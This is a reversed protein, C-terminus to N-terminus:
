HSHTHGEPVISSVAALKLQYAGKAVLRDGASLGSLAVAREGDNPGLNVERRIYGEDDAQVYVFFLSQEEIIASIPATVVNEQPASLLYVEAFTGPLIDGAPYDFEFIVPIFASERGASAKGFSLLRGNLESLKYLRDDYATKFNASRINKLERYHNDSVEVRLQLRRNQVVSAIRQGVSIYEGQAVSLNRIYGNMPANVSIGKATVNASQAEYATRATEYRLRVQDYENASILQDRFLDDARAMEKQSIEYSIKAKAAPDGDPLNGASITVISEGRRVYMGEAISAKAFSVIGNATAAVTAEDAQSAQIQGSAKIVAAFTRAEVIEIQLGTAEAQEHTFIIEDAPHEEGSLESAQVRDHSHDHEGSHEHSHDHGHSHEAEQRHSHCAAFLAWGAILIYIIYIRM